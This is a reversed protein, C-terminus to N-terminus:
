KESENERARERERKRTKQNATTGFGGDDGYIGVAPKLRNWRFKRPLLHIYFKIQFESLKWNAVDTKEIMKMASKEMRRFSGIPLLKSLLFMKCNLSVFSFFAYKLLIYNFTKDAHKQQQM